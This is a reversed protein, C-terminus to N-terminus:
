VVSTWVGYTDCAGQLLGCTKALFWKESEDSIAGKMLDGVRCLEKLFPQSQELPFFDLFSVSNNLGNVSALYVLATWRKYFARCADVSACTAMEGTLVSLDAIKFHDFAARYSADNFPTVKLMSEKLSFGGEKRSPNNSYRGYDEERYMSFCAKDSAHYGASFRYILRDNARIFCGNDIGSYIEQMERRTIKEDEFLAGPKAQFVKWITLGSQPAYNFIFYDDLPKIAESDAAGAHSARVEIRRQMPSESHSSAGGHVAAGHYASGVSNRREVERLYLMKLMEFSSDEVREGSSLLRSLEEEFDGAVCLSPVAAFIFIAAVQVATRKFNM